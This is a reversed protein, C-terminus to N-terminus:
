AVAQHAEAYLRLAALMRREYDQGQSQFWALIKPDLELAVTVTHRSLSEGPILWQAKAFFEESLPPSDSTDIEEDTLADLREWNTRSSSSMNSEKM